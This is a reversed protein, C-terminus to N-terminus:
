DAKSAALEDGTIAAGQEDVLGASIVLKAGDEVSMNLIKIERTPVFLLFGSTPNPTTPLFVATMEEGTTENIRTDAANTVFAVAFLGKRPYEILAVKSFGQGDERVASQFIQKLASYVSGVIPMHRIISDGLGVLMRGIINAAFGGILTLLVLAAIVGIGPVYFPLYTEPRYAVPILPKFWGDLFEVIWMVLYFTIVVPATIALGALFYNRLIGFATRKKQSADTM